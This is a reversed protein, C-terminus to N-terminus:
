QGNGRLRLFTGARKIDINTAADPNGQTAGGVESSYTTGELDPGSRVDRAM